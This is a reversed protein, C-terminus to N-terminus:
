FTYKETEENKVVAVWPFASFDCSLPCIVKSYYHNVRVPESDPSSQEYNEDNTNYIVYGEDATAIYACPKGDRLRTKVSINPFSIGSNEETFTM